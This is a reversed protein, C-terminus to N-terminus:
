EGAQAMVIQSLCLYTMPMGGSGSLGPSALGNLPQRRGSGTGSVEALRVSGQPVVTEALLVAVSPSLDAPVASPKETCRALTDPDDGTVELWRERGAQRAVKGSATLVALRTCPTRDGVEVRFVGWGAEGDEKV